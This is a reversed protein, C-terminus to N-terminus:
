QWGIYGNERTIDIDGRDKNSPPPHILVVPFVLATNGVRLHSFKVAAIPKGRYIVQMEKQPYVPLGREQLERYCANAYIRYIFGPGLETHVAYLGGIIDYALEPSILDPVLETATQEVVEVSTEPSRAQFFIREFEPKRGGYNFLLGVQRDFTKLYSFTQAKHGTFGGM